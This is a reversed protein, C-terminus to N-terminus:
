LDAIERLVATAFSGRPLEFELWVADGEDHMAANGVRVRLPRHAAKVKLRDIAPLSGCPHIDQAACRQELEETPTDVDFVSGSGDLNAKDGPLLTNWTGAEIRAGLENNFALSRLASLGISRKNRSMRRGALVAEGLEINGGDHGFRQEGFYNPVGQGTITALREAIADSQGPVDAGRLAIRFANGSHTGRKLKRYHRRVELIRVGDADFDDWNTGVGSPRRVSFWQTTVAHRDKLGAYGVDREHVGAHKAFRGAVWATNAGTKEIQLWDHEGDGSFEIDLQEVVVFDSPQSRIRCSCLPEGLARAWDPLIAM